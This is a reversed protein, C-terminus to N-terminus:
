KFDGGFVDSAAPTLSAYWTETRVGPSVGLVSGDGMGVLLVGNVFSQPVGPDCAGPQPRDQYTLSAPIDYTLTSPNFQLRSPDPLNFVPGTPPPPSDAPGSETPGWNRLDAENWNLTAGTFGRAGSPTTSLGTCSYYAETLFVTASLGDRITAFNHSSKGITFVESNGAYSAAGNAFTFGDDPLTLDSPHIYMKITGGTFGPELSYPSAYYGDLGAYQPNWESYWRNPGYSKEYIAGQEIFPLLYFFFTGNIGGEGYKPGKWGCAPPIYNHAAHFNHLALGIQKLNNASTTRAAAARVKQVAPLLIGILLAIVAMVVLLEILTFGRRRRVARFTCITM